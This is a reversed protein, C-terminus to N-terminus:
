DPTLCELSLHIETIVAPSRLSTRLIDEIKKIRYRVTNPHLACQTATASVDLDNAFYERLFDLLDPHDNILPALQHAAKRSTPATARGALLWDSIGVDEFRM